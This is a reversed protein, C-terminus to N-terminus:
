RWFWGGGRRKEKERVVVGELRKVSEELGAMREEREGMVKLREWLERMKEVKEEFRVMRWELKKKDFVGERRAELMYRVPDIIKTQTEPDKTQIEPGKGKGSRTSQTTVINSKPTPLQRFYEILRALRGSKKQWEDYMIKDAHHPNRWFHMLTSQGVLPLTKAPCPIYIWRDSATEPPWVNEDRISAGDLPLLDFMVFKIAKVEKLEFFRRLWSREAFYLHRFEQFIEFDHREGSGNSHTAKIGFKSTNFIPLIWRQKVDPSESTHDANDDNRTDISTNAASGSSKGANSPASKSHSETSLGAASSTSSRMGIRSTPNSTQQGAQTPGSSETENPEITEHRRDLSEQMNEIGGPVIELFDDYFERGCVRRMGPAPPRDLASQGLFLRSLFNHLTGAMSSKKVIAVPPANEYVDSETELEMSIRPKEAISEEALSRSSHGAENDSDVSPDSERDSKPSQSSGRNRREGPGSSLGLTVNGYGHLNAAQSFPIEPSLDRGRTEAGKSSSEQPKNTTWFLDRAKTAVDGNIQIFGGPSLSRYGNNQYDRNQKQYDDRAAESGITHEYDFGLEQIGANWVGPGVNGNLQIAAETAHLNEYRHGVSSSYDGNIQHGKAQNWYDPGPAQFGTTRTEDQKNGKRKRNKAEKSEKKDKLQRELLQREREEQAEKMAKQEKAAPSDNRTALVMNRHGTSSAALVNVALALRAFVNVPWIRIKRQWIKLVKEWLTGRDTMESWNGIMFVYELDSFSTTGMRTDALQFWTQSNLALYKIDAFPLNPSSHISPISSSSPLSGWTYTISTPPAWGLSLNIIDKSPDWYIEMRPGNEKNGGAHENLRGPSSKKASEGIEHCCVKRSEDAVVDFGLKYHGLGVERSESCIHMITPISQQRLALVHPHAFCAKRKHPVYDIDAPCLRFDLLQPPTAARYHEWVKLRLETPLLPFLTFTPEQTSSAPGSITRPLSPVEAALPSSPPTDVIPRRTPKSRVPLELSSSISLPKSPKLDLDSSSRNLYQSWSVYYM